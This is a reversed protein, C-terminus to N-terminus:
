FTGGDLNGRMNELQFTDTEEGDPDYLLGKMYQPHDDDALGSLQGHDSIGSGGGGTVTSVIVTEQQTITAVNVDTDVIIIDCECSM